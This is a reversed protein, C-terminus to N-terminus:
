FTNFFLLLLISPVDSSPLPKTSPSVFFSSITSQKQRAKVKPRFNTPAYSIVVILVISFLKLKVYKATSLDLDTDM